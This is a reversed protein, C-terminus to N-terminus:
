SPNPLTYAREAIIQEKTAQYDERSILGSSFMEQAEKIRLVADQLSSPYKVPHRRGIEPDIQDLL